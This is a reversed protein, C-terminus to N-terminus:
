AILSEIDIMESIEKRSFYANVNVIRYSKVHADVKETFLEGVSHKKRTESQALLISLVRSKREYNIDFEVSSVDIDSPYARTKKKM